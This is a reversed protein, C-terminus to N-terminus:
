LNAVIAYFHTNEWRNCEPPYIDIVEVIKFGVKKLIDVEKDIHRYQSYYDTKLEESYGSVLVDENVGFQNKILMKGNEKLNSYYKKYIGLIEDENFYQAVGFMTILDFKKETVFLSIDQNVVTVQNTNEIFKSFESFAEVANIHKVHPSIKNVILGTGSALDLIESDSDAFKLIFNSDRESFDSNATIKVSKESPNNQAMSAFFTLSNNNKV